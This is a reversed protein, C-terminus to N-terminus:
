GQVVRFRKLDESAATFAPEISVAQKLDDYADRLNGLAEEAVARNYYALESQRPKLAIAKGSSVVAEDYRRLAILVTGRNLFAEALIPDISLAEDYDNLALEVEGLRARLIGRNVFTSARDRASLAEQDLARTCTQVGRSADDNHEATVYCDHAISSGIVQVAGSAPLASLAAAVSGAFIIRTAYSL